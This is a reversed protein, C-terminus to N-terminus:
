DSTEVWVVNSKNIIYTKIETRSGEVGVLVLYEEEANQVLDSLRSFHKTNVAGKLTSGDSIRITAKQYNRPWQHESLEM